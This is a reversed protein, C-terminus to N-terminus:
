EDDRTQSRTYRRVRRYGHLKGDGDLRVEYQALVDTTAPIRPMELVDVTVRWTDGDWELGTAAEPEYSTLQGVTSMAAAALESPALSGRDDHSTAM